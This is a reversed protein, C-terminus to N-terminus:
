VAPRGGARDKRRCDPRRSLIGCGRRRRHPCPMKKVDALLNHAPDTPNDEDDEAWGQVLILWRDLQQRNHSGGAENPDRDPNFSEIISILPLSEEASITSRGRFVRGDLDHQYGNSVTVTELLATLRRLITLRKSDM